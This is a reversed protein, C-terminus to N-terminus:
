IGKVLAKGTTTIQGGASHPTEAHIINGSSDGDIWTTTTTGDYGTIKLQRDGTASDADVSGIIINGSGSTM